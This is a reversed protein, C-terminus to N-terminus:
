FGKAGKWSMRTLTMLTEQTGHTLLTKEPAAQKIEGSDETATDSVAQEVPTDTATDVPADVETVVESIVDEM